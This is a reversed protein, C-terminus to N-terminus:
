TPSSSRADRELPRRHGVARPPREHRRAQADREHDHSSGSRGPSRPRASGAAATACRDIRVQRKRDGRRRRRRPPTILRSATRSRWTQNSRGRRRVLQVRDLPHDNSRSAPSRRPSTPSDPHPLVVVIRAIIPSSGGIPSPRPRPAARRCRADQGAALVRHAGCRQVSMAITKWPAIFASLGTFVTSDCITSGISNWPVAFPAAAFLWPPRAAALQDADRRRRAGPVRVLEGTPHSLAGRDRHRQRALRLHQEGVLGRGREVHHHLRLDELQQLRSVRSRPRASTSTVCSRGTTSAPRRARPRSTRRALDDLGSPRRGTGRAAADTCAAATRRWAPDTRAVSSTSEIGPAGAAGPGAVDDAAREPSPAVAREVPALGLAREQLRDALITVRGAVQVVVGTRPRRAPRGILAAARGVVPPRRQELHAVEDHAVRDASPQEARDPALGALGHVRHVADREGHPGALHERQDALGPAALRRRRLRDEPQDIRRGARDLEVPLSERPRLWRASAGSGACRHLHDVLVGVLREIRPEAHPLRDLLRHHDMVDAATSPRARASEDDVRERPDLQRRGLRNTSRYGCSSEPPCRWRTAIAALRTSSGFSSRRRRARRSARRRPARPRGSAARGAGARRAVHADQHDRVVQRRGRVEGVPDGHHVEAPDDLLSRRAVTTRSGCCGYVFASSDTTGFRSGRSRGLRLDELALRRVRDVRRRAAPEVRPARDGLVATARLIRREPGHVGGGGM